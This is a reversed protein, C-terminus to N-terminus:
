AKKLLPLYVPEQFSHSCPAGDVYAFAAHESTVEIHSMSVTNADDRHMCVSKKSQNPEHSSHYALFDKTSESSHLNLDDFLQYRCRKVQQTDISSSSKPGKINSEIVLNKGDWIFLRNDGTPEIMFLRFAQYRTLELAKFASEANMLNQTTAFLRVLEGRSIWNKKTITKEFQYYNLLCVTIGFHNCAIWTGGADTDTPSIYHIGSQHQKTPPQARSRSNREDRNFFLEYGSEKNFWTLTCM